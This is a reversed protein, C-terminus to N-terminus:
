HPVFGSGEVDVRLEDFRRHIDCRWITRIMSDRKCAACTLATYDKRGLFHTAAERMPAVDLPRWYHYTHRQLLTSVPRNPANFVRYRYLKGTASRTAHFALSVESVSRVAIDQPLRSGIAHRLNDSSIPCHTRVNVVQGVAHVGADTRGSAIPDVPHRLVRRLADALVAQVTRLGPQEQWGHFDTGDYSILLRVNREM